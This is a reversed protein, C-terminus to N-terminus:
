VDALARRASSVDLEADHLRQEADEVAAEAKELREQERELKREATALKREAAQRRKARERRERAEADDGKSNTAPVATAAGAFGLSAVQQERDLWGRQVLEAVEPDSAAAQLTETVKSMVQAGVGESKGIKEATSILSDIAKREKTASSRLKRHDTSGALMEDQAARLEASAKLLRKVARANYGGIQNVVWAARTPKRLDKVWKAAEDNGDSRLDEALANRRPTFEELPGHYLWDLRRSTVDKPPNTATTTM